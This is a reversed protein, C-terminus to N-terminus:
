ERRVDRPDKDTRRGLYSPHRLHQLETWETFRVEVVMQPNVFQSDRPLDRDTFPSTDSPRTALESGLRDLEADSFGTGVKGAYRLAGDADYVGLLLAGIRSARGGQGPVWGGVVFEQRHQHKVKRWSPSRRGSEYQSDLRKAVIGEFGLRARTSFALDGDLGSPPTDWADGRAGLRDLLARRDAYALETLQHGDFWLLDFIMFTVPVQSAVRAVATPDRLHMRSQLRQFNSRGQEDIAVIEGDLVATTPGLAQALPQLEPYRLTIENGTRSRLEVTKPGVLAIARVGDWKMEYSWGDGPPLETAASALM